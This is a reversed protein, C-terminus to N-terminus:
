AQLHSFVSVGSLNEKRGKAYEKRANCSDFMRHVIGSFKNVFLNFVFCLINKEGASNLYDNKL